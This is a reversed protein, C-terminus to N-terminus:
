SWVEWYKQRDREKIQSELIDYVM